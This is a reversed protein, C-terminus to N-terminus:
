RAPPELLVVFVHEGVFAITAMLVGAGIMLAFVVGLVVLGNTRSPPGAPNHRANWRADDVLGHFIAGAMAAVITLGLLPILLWSLRDDVGFARMRQVGVLGLLTPPVFLWGWPDRWGHLYFRHGGLVGAVLAIWVAALKSKAGATM